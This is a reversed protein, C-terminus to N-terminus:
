GGFGGGGDFGGGFGGGFDAGGFGAGGGDMGTGSDYGGFAAGGMTDSGLVLGAGALYGGALLRQDGILPVGFRSDARKALAAGGVGIPQSLAAGVVALCSVFREASFEGTTRYWAPAGGRSEAADAVARMTAEDGFLVAWPLLEPAADSLATTPAPDTTANAGTEAVAARLEASRARLVLGAANLPIWRPLVLRLGIAVAGIVIASWAISAAADDDLMLSIFGFVVGMGGGVAIARFRGAPRAERYREAAFAFARATADRLDDNDAVVRDVAVSAGVQLRGHGTPREARLVAPALRIDLDDDPLEMRDPAGLRGSADVRALLRVERAARDRASRDRAHANRAGGHSQSQGDGAGSGPERRDDIVLVGDLALRVVAAPLWRTASSGSAFAVSALGAVVPDTPAFFVQERPRQLWAAILTGAVIAAMLAGGLALLPLVGTALASEGM